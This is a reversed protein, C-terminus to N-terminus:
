FAIVIPAVIVNKLKCSYNHFPTENLHNSTGEILVQLITGSEDSWDKESTWRARSM